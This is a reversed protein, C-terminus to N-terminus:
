SSPTAEGTSQPRDPQLLSTLPARDGSSSSDRKPPGQSTDQVGDESSSLCARKGGGIRMSPASPPPGQDEYTAPRDTNYPLASEEEYVLTPSIPVPTRTSVTSTYTRADSQKETLDKGLIHRIATKIVPIQEKRLLM